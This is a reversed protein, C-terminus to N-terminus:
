TFSVLIPPCLIVHALMEASLKIPLIPIFQERFTQCRDHYPYFLDYPPVLVNWRNPRGKPNYFLCISVLPQEQYYTIPIFMFTFLPTEYDPVGSSDFYFPCLPWPINRTTHLSPFCSRPALRRQMKSAKASLLRSM